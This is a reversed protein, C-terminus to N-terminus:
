RFQKFGLDTAYQRFCKRCINLGYKSIHARHSGRLKCSRTAIGHAREKPSNHKIYKKKVDPKKELQTFAKKWNSTTM